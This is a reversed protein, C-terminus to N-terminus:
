HRALISDEVGLNVNFDKAFYYQAWEKSANDLPSPAKKFNPKFDSLCTLAIFPDIRRARRVENMKSTFGYREMCQQDLVRAFQQAAEVNSQDAGLHREDMASRRNRQVILELHLHPQISADRANGTKGVEGIQDGPHVDFWQDQGLHTRSLHAFFFSAWPHPQNETAFAPPVPCIVHVWSGFSSSAGARMKGECPAYVATGIPALLDLGNHEGHFRPARFYGQGSQDIRVGHDVPMVYTWPADQRRAGPVAKKKALEPTPGLSFSRGQGSDKGALNCAATLATLLLLPFAQEISRRTRPNTMFTKFESALRLTQRKFRFRWLRLQGPVSLQLRVLGLVLSMTVKSSLAHTQHLAFALHQYHHQGGRGSGAFVRRGQWAGGERAEGLHVPSARDRRVHQAM